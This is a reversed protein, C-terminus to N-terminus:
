AHGAGLRQALAFIGGLPRLHRVFVRLDGEISFSPVRGNMALLDSYFPPPMPQLFTRWDELKGRFTVSWSAGIDPDFVIDVIKGARILLLVLEDDIALAVDLDCWRGIVKMEADEAVVEQLSEFWGREPFPHQLATVRDM